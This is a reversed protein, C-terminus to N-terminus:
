SSYNMATERSNTDYMFHIPIVDPPFAARNLMGCDPCCKSEAQHESVVLQLPPLDHVQRLNWHSVSTDGLSAGCDVCQLVRHVVVEDVEESWELTSGPHNKQGGSNRESKRRLSKTRQGFGDTSPPKSSNRSDKHM